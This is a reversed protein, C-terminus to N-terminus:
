EQGQVNRRGDCRGHRYSGRQLMTRPQKVGDRGFNEVVEETKRVKAISTGHETIKGVDAPTLLISRGSYLHLLPVMDDEGEFATVNPNVEPDLELIKFGGHINGM